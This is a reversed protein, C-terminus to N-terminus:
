GSAALQAIRRRMDILLESSPHNVSIRVWLRRSHETVRAAINILGFRIAKMRKNIWSDEASCSPFTRTREKRWRKKLERNEKHRLGHMEVKRMIRCFGEDAELKDIDEVCDSGVLNLLVLALIMQRDTWGQDGCRIRLHRDISKSFGIASAMDLYTPLGGFVTLGAKSEEIEYEYPLARQAM